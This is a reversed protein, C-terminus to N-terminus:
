INVHVYIIKLLLRFVNTNPCKNWSLTRADKQEYNFRFLHIPRLLLINFVVRYNCNIYVIFFRITQTFYNFEYEIPRGWHITRGIASNCKHYPKCQNLNKGPNRHLHIPNSSKIWSQSLLNFAWELSINCTVIM